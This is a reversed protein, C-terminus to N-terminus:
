KERWPFNLKLYDKIKIEREQNFNDIYYQQKRKPNEKSKGKRYSEHM